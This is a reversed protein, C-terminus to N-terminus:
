HPEALHLTCLCYFFPPMSHWPKLWTKRCLVFVKLGRGVYQVSCSSALERSRETLAFSHRHGLICTYIQFALREFNSTFLIKKVAYRECLLRSENHTLLKPNRVPFCKLIPIFFGSFCFVPKSLAKIPISNLIHDFQLGPLSSNNQMVLWWLRLSSSFEFGNQDNLSLTGLYM